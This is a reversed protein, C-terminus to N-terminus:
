NIEWHCESSEPSMLSILGLINKGEVSTKQHTIKIILFNKKLSFYFFVFFLVEVFPDTQKSRELIHSVFCDWIVM